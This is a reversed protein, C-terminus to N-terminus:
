SSRRFSPCFSWDRLRRWHESRECKVSIILSLLSRCFNYRSATCTVCTKMAISLVCKRESLDLASQKHIKKIKSTTKQLTQFKQV